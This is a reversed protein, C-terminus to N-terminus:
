GGYTGGLPGCRPGHLYEMWLRKTMDVGPQDFPNVDYLVASMICAAEYFFLLGGMNQLSENELTIRYTPVGAHWLAKEVSNLAAKQLHTLNIKKLFDWREPLPLPLSSPPLSRPALREVDVLGIMKNLPGDCFLQLLSHQDATGMAAVPTPGQRQGKRTKKGLSEAWLQVFWHSLGRLQPHYPMCYHMAYGLRSDLTHLAHAFLYLPSTDPTLIGRMIIERVFLAGKLLLEIDFGQLALPVLASATFISFRGGIEAPITFTTWHLKEALGRLTSNEPSTVVAIGDNQFYPQLQFFASLTEVTEGSKSIVVAACRKHSVLAYAQELSDPDLEHIWMVPFDTHHPTGKEVQSACAQAVAEAGLYSGGIGFFVLGEFHSHWRKVLEKLRSTEDANVLGMQQLCPTDHLANEAHSCSERVRPEIPAHNLSREAQEVALLSSLDLSFLGFDFKKLQPFKRPQRDPILPNNM